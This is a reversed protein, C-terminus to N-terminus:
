GAKYVSSLISSSERTPISEKYKITSNNDTSHIQSNETGYDKEKRITQNNKLVLCIEADTNLQIAKVTKMLLSLSIDKLQASNEFETKIQETIYSLSDLDAYKLAALDFIKQKLINKDVEAIELMRNIENETKITATSKDSVSDSQILSTNLILYNLMDTIKSILETDFISVSHKCESCIWKETIEKDAQRRRKMQNNCESCLVPMKLKYIYNSRDTNKTTDRDDKINNAQNFIDTDVIQPYMNNGLYNENEIIRRIKNKSWKVQDPLYEIGKQILLNSIKLLSLGNIYEKFVQNVIEAEAEDVVIRSNEFKYGYTVSRNKINVESYWWKM